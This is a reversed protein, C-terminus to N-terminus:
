MDLSIVLVVIDGFEQTKFVRDREHKHFEKSKLIDKVKGESITKTGNGDELLIKVLSKSKMNKLLKSLEINFM